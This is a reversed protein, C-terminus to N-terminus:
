VRGRVGLPVGCSLVSVHGGAGVCSEASESVCFEGLCLGGASTINPRRFVVLM